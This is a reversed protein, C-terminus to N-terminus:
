PAIADLLAAWYQISQLSFGILILGVGYVGMRREPVHDATWEVFPTFSGAIATVLGLALGTRLGVAIAHERHQAVLSSVYGAAGYGVTRNLAALLQFRTLRPRNAPKYGVTPRIGIRYAIAQGATSLIGFTAGFAPGSTYAAGVAFGAGRIASMATDLWFGAQPEHRSARSYEWALTIGHALGATLGIVPGLAIGYGIGFLLGYTVARTLTRLPGHEGGLLDYALYMAGLVDLASGLISILALTHRDITVPFMM